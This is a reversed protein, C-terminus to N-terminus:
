HAHRYHAALLDEGWDRTTDRWVTHVHNAANQTNDYELLLSGARLAYYHGQGPEASGAWAFTVTRPDVRPPEPVRGLHRALLRELVAAQEDGLDACALGTPVAAVEARVANRTLIDDPAEQSVVAEARQADDLGTLLARALDEEPGLVRVGARPSGDPVRAPNAGFFLPTTSVQEGVVTMHLCLHHGGVRWAWPGEGAPDGFVTFWYLEPDRREAGARGEAEEVQRLDTELAMIARATADGQESLGTRMLALAAAAQDPDMEKLVLGGRPGPTYQWRYREPDDLPYAAVVRQADYLSSLFRVAEDRM